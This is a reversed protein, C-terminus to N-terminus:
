VNKRLLIINVQNYVAEFTANSNKKTQRYNAMKESATKPANSIKLKVKKQRYERM